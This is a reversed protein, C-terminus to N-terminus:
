FTKRVRTDPKKAKDKDKDKDKGGESGSSVATSRRDKHQNATFIDEGSNTKNHRDQTCAETPQHGSIYYDSTTLPCFSQALMGSVQCATAEVVGNPRPFALLKKGKEAKTMVATWVPVADDAGTHGPGMSAHNDAGVWVGM